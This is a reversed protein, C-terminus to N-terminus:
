RWLRSEEDALTAMAADLRFQLTAIRDENAGRDKANRLLTRAIDVAEKLQDRRTRM